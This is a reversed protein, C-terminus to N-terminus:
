RKVKQKESTKQLKEKLSKVLIIKKFLHLGAFYFVCLQLAASGFVMTTEVIVSTKLKNIAIKKKEFSEVM